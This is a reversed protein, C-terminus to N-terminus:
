IQEGEMWSFLSRGIENAFLNEVCVTHMGFAAYTPARLSDNLHPIIKQERGLKQRLIQTIFINMNDSATAVFIARATQFYTEAVMQDDTADGLAVDGTYTSPIREFAGASKDVLVVKLGQKLLCEALAIGIKNCGIVVVGSTTQKNKSFFKMRKM